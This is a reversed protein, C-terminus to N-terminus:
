ADAGPRGEKGCKAFAGYCHDHLAASGPAQLMERLTVLSGRRDTGDRLLVRVPEYAGIVDRCYACRLPDM